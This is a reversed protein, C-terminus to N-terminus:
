GDSDAAPDPSIVPMSCRRHQLALLLRRRGLYAAAALAVAAAVVCPVIVAVTAEDDGGGDDVRDPDCADCACAKKAKVEDPSKKKCM